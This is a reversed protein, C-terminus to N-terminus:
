RPTSSGLPQPRPHWLLGAYLVPVLVGGRVWASRLRLSPADLRCSCLVANGPCIWLHPRLPALLVLVLGPSRPATGLRSCRGVPMGLAVDGGCAEAKILFHSKSVPLPSRILPTAESPGCSPMQQGRAQRGLVGTAGAGGGGQLYSVPVSFQVVPGSAGPGM